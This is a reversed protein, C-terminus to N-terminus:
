ARVLRLATHNAAPKFRATTPHKSHPATPWDISTVPAMTQPSTCTGHGPPDSSPTTPCKDRHSRIINCKITNDWSIYSFHSRFSGHASQHNLSCKGM